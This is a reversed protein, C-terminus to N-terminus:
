PLLLLQLASGLVKGFTEGAAACKDLSERSSEVPTFLKVFWEWVEGVARRIASFVLSLTSFADRFPSLQQLVGSFFGTFFAKIPEWFRWILLGATIFAAAILGIPSFLLSLATGLASISTTLISWIAPLGSLRLTLMG